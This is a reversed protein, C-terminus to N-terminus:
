RDATRGRRATGVGCWDRGSPAQLNRRLCIMDPYGPPDQTGAALHPQQVCPAWVSLQGGWCRVYEHGWAGVSESSGGALRFKLGERAGEAGSNMALVSLVDALAAKNASGAPMAEFTAKLGSYHQRLFKLPKPVSTMSTTASKIETAIAQLM